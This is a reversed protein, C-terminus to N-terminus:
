DERETGRQTDMPQAPGPGEHVVPLKSERWYGERERLSVESELVYIRGEPGIM